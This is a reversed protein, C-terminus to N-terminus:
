WAQEPVEPGPGEGRLKTIAPSYGEHSGSKPSLTLNMMFLSTTSSYVGTGSRM